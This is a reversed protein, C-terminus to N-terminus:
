RDVEEKEDYYYGYDDRSGLCDCYYDSEYTSSEDDALFLAELIRREEWSTDEQNSNDPRRYSNTSRQAGGRLQRALLFSGLRHPNNNTEAMSCCTTTNVEDANGFGSNIKLRKEIWLSLSMRESSSSGLMWVMTLIIWWQIRM